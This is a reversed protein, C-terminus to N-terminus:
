TNKKYLFIGNFNQFLISTDKINTKKLEKEFINLNFPSTIYVYGNPTNILECIKNENKFFMCKKLEEVKNLNQKDRNDTDILWFNNKLPEMKKNNKKIKKIRNTNINVVDSINKYYQPDLTSKFKFCKKSLNEKTPEKVPYPDMYIRYNNKDCLRKYENYVEFMKEKSNVFEVSILKNYLSEKHTERNDKPRYM